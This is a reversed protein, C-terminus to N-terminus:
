PPSYHIHPTDSPYREYEIAQPRMKCTKRLKGWNKNSEKVEFSTKRNNFVGGMGEIMM